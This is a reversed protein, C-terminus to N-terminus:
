LLKSGEKFVLQSFLLLLCVCKVKGERWYIYKENIALFALSHSLKASCFPSFFHSQWFRLLDVEKGLFSVLQELSTSPVVLQHNLLISFYDLNNLFVFGSIIIVVHVKVLPCSNNAFHKKAPQITIMLIKNRGIFVKDYFLYHLLYFIRQLAGYCCNDELKTM